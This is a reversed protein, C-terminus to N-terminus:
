MDSSTRGAEMCKKPHREEYEKLALAVKLDNKLDKAFRELTKNRSISSSPLPAMSSISNGGYQKGIVDPISTARCLELIEIVDSPFESTKLNFVATIRYDELSHNKYNTPVFHVETHILGKAAPPIANLLLHEPEVERKYVEYEPQILREFERMGDAAAYFAKPCTKVQTGKFKFGAKEWEELIDNVASDIISQAIEAM